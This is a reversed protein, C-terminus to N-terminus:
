ILSLKIEMKAIATATTVLPWNYFRVKWKLCSYKQKRGFSHFKWFRLNNHRLM